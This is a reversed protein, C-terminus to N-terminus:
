IVLKVKKGVPDEKFLAELTLAKGGAKKIKEVASESFAFAAVNTKEAMNGTGLVKGPVVLTFGDLAMLSLKSLNVETRQNRPTSLRFAVAKWFPSKSREFNTLIRCVRPDSFNRGRIRKDLGV